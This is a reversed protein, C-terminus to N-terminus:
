NSPLGHQFSLSLLNQYQMKLLSLGVNTFNLTSFIILFFQLSSLKMSFTENISHYNRIFGDVFHLYRCQKQLTRYFSIKNHLSQVDLLSLGCARSSIPQTHITSNPYTKLKLTNLLFYPKTYLHRLHVIKWPLQRLLNWSYNPAVPSPNWPAYLTGLSQKLEKRRNAEWRDRM